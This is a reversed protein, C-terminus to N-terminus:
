RVLQEFFAMRSPHSEKKTLLFGACWFTRRTQTKYWECPWGYGPYYGSSQQQNQQQQRDYEEKLKNMAESREQNNEDLTMPLDVSEGDRYVTFTVKEGAHFRKVADQLGSVSTIETDDVKTIIDGVQLGAKEACSGELIAMIEAGDPIGYRLANADIEDLLIGVNPKGTVYGHEILDKIMDSVDDM